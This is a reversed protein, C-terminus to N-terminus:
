KIAWAKRKEKLKEIDEQSMKFQMVVEDKKTDIKIKNLIDIADRDESMSLKATAVFGKMADRFLGAKEADEFQGLAHFKMNDDFYVSFNLSQLSKLGQFNESQRHNFEGMMENVFKQADMLMWCQKKYKLEDISKKTSESPENKQDLTGKELWEQISNENGVILRNNDAFCIAFEGDDVLYLTYDNFQKEQVESGEQEEMIYTMIREPQYNGNIVAFLSPDDEM